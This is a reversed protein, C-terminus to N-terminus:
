GIDIMFNLYDLTKLGIVSYFLIDFDKFNKRQKKHSQIDQSIVLIKSHFFILFMWAIFKAIFRFILFRILGM